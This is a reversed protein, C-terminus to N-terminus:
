YIALERFPAQKLIRDYGLRSLDISEFRGVDILEAAARGIGPAHQLGHGSFATAVLLNPYLPHGFGIIGNQDLTNYEYLGAWASRVKLQEFAPVRAALDPWIIDDFLGHDVAEADDDRKVDPDDLPSVGCIFNGHMRDSRFYAGSTDLVLPSDHPPRREEDDCAIAFICRKRPRVPIDQVLDASHAGATLVAVGATFLTGDTTELEANNLRAADAKVYEVGLRSAGRKTYCLLSYADFYGENAEGFAAAAVGTTDIWPFRAELQDKRLFKIWDAGASIQIAHADRLHAEDRALTLYGCEVFNLECDEGVAESLGSKIWWAGYISLAVNEALTFQQRIGGASRATSSRSSLM